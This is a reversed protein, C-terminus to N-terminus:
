ANLTIVLLSGPILTGLIFIMLFVLSKGSMGFYIPQLISRVLWFATLFVLIHTTTGNAGANCAYYGFWIAAMGFVFILCWNMVPMISRNIPDIKRLQRNWQFLRGFSLHFVALGTHYVIGAVSLIVIMM